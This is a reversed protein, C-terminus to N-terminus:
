ARALLDRFFQAHEDLATEIEYPLMAEPRVKPLRADLAEALAAAFADEDGIPVPTRAGVENLLDILAPSSATTVVPCGCAIAEVLTAPLGEWRSSQALVTAALYEPVPDAIFGAFEVRESIGLEAALARLALEDPGTGCLRLRWDREKLRAAARLLLAQNKQTHLRGVNLIVPPSVPQREAARAIMAQSVYPRHIPRTRGRLSPKLAAVEDVGGPSLVWVEAAQALARSFSWRRWAREWPPRRGLLPNTVEPVFLGAYRARTVAAGAPRITHNGPAHFIRPQHQRLYDAIAPVANRLRRGREGRFDGLVRVAVRDSLLPRTPGDDALVVMEVIFGREAMGSAVLSAVKEVGGSGFRDLLIAIDPVGGVLPPKASSRKRSSSSTSRSRRM